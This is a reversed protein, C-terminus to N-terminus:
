FTVTPRDVSRDVPLEKKAASKTRKQCFRSGVAIIKQPSYIGWQFSNKELIKQAFKERSEPTKVAIM